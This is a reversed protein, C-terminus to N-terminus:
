GATNGWTALGSVPGATGKQVVAILGSVDGDLHSSRPVKITKADGTWKGIQVLSRAVNQYIISHGSNEGRDIKVAVQPSIAMLSVNGSGQGEPLAVVVFEADASLTIPVFGRAMRAAAIASAVGASDSGTVHVAGNIVMQPTYIAGDGRQTAYDMQRKTYEAKALTDKWGLYDWYDVNLSAVAVGPMTKLKAALRDAAPCSSCGQSTFLEVLVPTTASLAAKAFIPMALAAASLTLCHRRTIVANKM